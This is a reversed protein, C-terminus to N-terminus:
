NKTNFFTIPPLPFMLTRCYFVRARHFYKDFELANVTTAYKEGEIPNSKM